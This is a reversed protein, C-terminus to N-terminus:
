CGSCPLRVEGVTAHPTQVDVLAAVELGGVEGVMPLDDDEARVCCLLEEVAVRGDAFGNLDFTVDKLDDAHKFFLIWSEELLPGSVSFAKTGNSM